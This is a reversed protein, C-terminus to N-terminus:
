GSHNKAIHIYYLFDIFKYSFEVTVDEFEIGKGQKAGYAKLLALFRKNIKATGEQVKVKREKIFLEIFNYFTVRDEKIIINGKQFQEFHKDNIM